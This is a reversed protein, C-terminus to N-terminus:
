FNKKFTKIDLTKAESRSLAMVREDADANTVADANTIRKTLVVFM